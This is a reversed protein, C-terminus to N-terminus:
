SILIAGASPLVNGIIGKMAAVAQVPRQLPLLKAHPTAAAATVRSTAAATAVSQQQVDQNQIQSPTIAITKHM